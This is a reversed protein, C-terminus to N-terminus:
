TRCLDALAAARRLMDDAAALVRDSVVLPPALAATEAARALEGAILADLAPLPEGTGIESARAKAALLADLAAAEDPALTVGGLLAPVDMPPMGAPHTRLWRLALAPRIAYLYKKLNVPRRGLWQGHVRRALAAYHHGAARRAPVRDALARLEAVWDPRGAYVIPSALWERVACNGGLLLGLTKRLDWGSVDLDGPLPREIVDRGPRLRLHWETRRAYLFRVDWDSDPSAFGWARSGSEVALLIAVREEAAIAGLAATIAARVSAEVPPSTTM